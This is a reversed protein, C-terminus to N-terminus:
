TQANGKPAHHLLVITFGANRLEMLRDMVFSMQRSDNEDKTQSSRLTDILILGPKFKKYVEWEPSALKPPKPDHVAHWFIVEHCGIKKVRDILVPWPNDFDIYAVDATQTTLGM